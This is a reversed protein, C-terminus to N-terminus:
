LEFSMLYEIIKSALPGDLYGLFVLNLDRSKMECSTQKNERDAQPHNRLFELEKRDATWFCTMRILLRLNDMFM